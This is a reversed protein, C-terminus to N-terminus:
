RTAKSLSDNGSQGRREMIETLVEDVGQVGDQDGMSDFFGRAEQLLQTARTFAGLHALANGLSALVRAYGVPNTQANRYALIQEYLSVAQWLNEEPHTSPLYQLTNALNLTASAWLEPYAEHTFVTLAERFGQVAIASRLRAKEGDLPLTVYALALNMQALAYSEPDNERTLWKLAEQYEHVAELLLSKRGNAMEQLASALEVRLYARVSDFASDELLTLATRYAQVIEESVGTQTRVIGTREALLRAAFVPSVSRAADVAEDLYKVGEWWEGTDLLFHAQTALLYARVEGETDGPKPPASSPWGLRWAVAEFLKKLDGELEVCARYSEETPNLVFRNYVSEADDALTESIGSVNTVAQRYFTWELPIERFRGRLVDALVDPGPPIEPTPLVLSGVIGPFVGLPQPRILM